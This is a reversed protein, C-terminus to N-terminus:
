LRKYLWEPVTFTRKNLIHGILKGRAFDLSREAHLIQETRTKGAEVVLIVGDVLPALSFVDRGEKLAPCDILIYDFAARLEALCDRRYEWDSEWSRGASSGTSDGLFESINTDVRQCHQGLEAPACGLERLLRADLQLVRMRPDRSLNNVIASLCHTVGEGPCASTLAIAIGHSSSARLQQFVTYLLGDYAPADATEPKAPHPHPEALTIKLTM